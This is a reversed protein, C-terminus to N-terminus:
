RGPFTHNSANPNLYQPNGPYGNVDRYSTKSKPPAYSDVDTYISPLKPEFAENVKRTGDGHNPLHAVQQSPPGYIHPNNPPASTYLGGLPAYGQHGGAAVRHASRFSFKYVNSIQFLNGNERFIMGLNLRQYFIRMLNQASMLHFRNRVTELIANAKLKDEYVVFTSLINDVGEQTGADNM